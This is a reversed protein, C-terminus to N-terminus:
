IFLLVFHYQFLLERYNCSSLSIIQYHVAVYLSLVIQVTSFLYLRFVLLHFYLALGVRSAFKCSFLAVFIASIFIYLVGVGLHLDTM